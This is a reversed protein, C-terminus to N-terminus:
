QVAQRSSNSSLSMNEYLSVTEAWSDQKISNRALELLRAVHAPNNLINEIKDAASKSDLPDFIFQPVRILESIGSHLSILVPKNHAIAELPVLGFPEDRSPVMVLSCEQLAAEKLAQTLRGLLRVHSSLGLQVVRTEIYQRFGEDNGILCFVFDNRGELLRSAAELALDTGKRYALSGICLIIKTNHSISFRTGFSVSIPQIQIPLIPYALHIKSLEIGKSELTRVVRNSVAIINTASKLISFGVLKDYARYAWRLRRSSSNATLPVGHVISIYPIGLIRCAVGATDVMIHGIGHLHVIDPHFHSLASAISVAGKITPPLNREIRSNSKSSPVLSIPKLELSPKPKSPKLNTRSGFLVLVHHRNSLERALQEVVVGGGGGTEPPFEPSVIAIRM